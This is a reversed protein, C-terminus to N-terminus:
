TLYGLDTLREETDEAIDREASHGYRVGQNQFTEFVSNVVGEDTSAEQVVNQIDTADLTVADSGRRAYKRITGNEKRYVARWSGFYNKREDEPLDLEEGPPVIRYTSSVVDGEPVFESGNLGGDSIAAEVVAPFRTLTAPEDVTKRDGGGPPRVILPVHTLVEDIGWSHHRLRVEPNLESREGLGEGHDSTVVLLTDELEGAEKLADVLSEVAADAQRITGDYLPEMASLHDYFEHTFLEPVTESKVRNRAERAQEDSWNDFEPKPDFPTHTDM